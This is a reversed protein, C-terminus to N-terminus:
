SRGRCGRVGHEGRAWMWYSGHDEESKAGRGRGSSRWTAQSWRGRRRTWGSRSDGTRIPRPHKEGNDQRTGSEDGRTKKVPPQVTQQRETREDQGDWAEVRAEPDRHRKPIAERRIPPNWRLNPPGRHRGGGQRHNEEDWLALLDVNLPPPPSPTRNQETGADTIRLGAFKDRTYDLDDPDVGLRENARRIGEADFEKLAGRSLPEPLKVDDTLHPRLHHPGLLTVFSLSEEWTVLDGIIEERRMMVAQGPTDPIPTVEGRQIRGFPERYAVEMHSWKINMETEAKDLENEERVELRLARMVLTEEGELIGEQESKIVLAGLEKLPSVDEPDVRAVIGDLALTAMANGIAFALRTQDPTLEKPKTNDTLHWTWGILFYGSVLGGLAGM